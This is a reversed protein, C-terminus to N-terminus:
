KTILLLLRYVILSRMAILAILASGMERLNCIFWDLANRVEDLLSFSLSAGSKERGFEGALKMQPTEVSLVLGRSL